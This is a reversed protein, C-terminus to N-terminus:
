QTHSLLYPYFYHIRSYSLVLFFSLLLELVAGNFVFSVFHKSLCVPVQQQCYESLLYCVFNLTSPFITFAFDM